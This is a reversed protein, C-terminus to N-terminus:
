IEAPRPLAEEPDTKSVLILYNDHFGAMQEEGLIFQVVHFGDVRQSSFVAGITSADHGAPRTERRTGAARRDAGCEELVLPEFVDLYEHRVRLDEPRRAFRASARRGLADPRRGHHLLGLFAGGAAAPVLHSTQQETTLAM